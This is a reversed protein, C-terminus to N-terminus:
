EASQDTKKTLFIEINSSLPRTFNVRHNCTEYISVMELENKTNMTSTTGQILSALRFSLKGYRFAFNCQKYVCQILRMPAKHISTIVFSQIIKFSNKLFLM